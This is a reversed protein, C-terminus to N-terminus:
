LAGETNYLAVAEGGKCRHVSVFGGVQKYSTRQENQAHWTEGGRVGMSGGGSREEWISDVAGETSSPWLGVM